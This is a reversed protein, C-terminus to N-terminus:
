ASTDEIGAQLMADGLSPLARANKERIEESHIYTFEHRHDDVIERKREDDANEDTWTVPGLKKRQGGPKSIYRYTLPPGVKVVRPTGDPGVDWTLEHFHGGVTSTYQQPKLQSNVSHYIHSHEIHEIRPQGKKFSVNKKMPQVDAKFLHHWAKRSGKLTFAQQPETRTKTRGTKATQSTTEEM